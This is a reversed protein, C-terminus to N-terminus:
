RKCSTTKSDLQWTFSHQNYPANPLAERTNGCKSKVVIELYCGKFFVVCTKFVNNARAKPDLIRGYDLRM